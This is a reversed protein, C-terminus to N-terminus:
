LVNENYGLAKFSIYKGRKVKRERGGAWIQMDEARVAAWKISGTQCHMLWNFHQQNLQAPCFWGIGSFSDMLYAIPALSASAMRATFWLWMGDRAEERWVGCMGMQSSCSETLGLRKYQIVPLHSDISPNTWHSQWILRFCLTKYDM